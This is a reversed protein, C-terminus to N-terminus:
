TRAAVSDLVRQVFADLEELSGDNVYAHDARRVKEEEPLLRKGRADAAVRSRRSRVAEPATVVVVADFNRESGSEFLLPVEVVAVDADLAALRRMYEDRVRPHLLAELWALADPDSFVIEAIKARDTTGLRETLARRVEVDSAILEHVIADTSITPM